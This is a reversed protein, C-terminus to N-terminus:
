YNLRYEHAQLTSDTVETSRERLYLDLAEDPTTATLTHNPEPM